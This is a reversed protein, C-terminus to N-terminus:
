CGPWDVLTNVVVTGDPTRIYIGYRDGSWETDASEHDSGQELHLPPAGGLEVFAVTGPEYGAISVKIRSESGDCYPELTYHATTDPVPALLLGDDVVVTGADGSDLSDAAAAPQTGTQAKVARAFARQQAPTCASLAALAAIALPYVIKKM